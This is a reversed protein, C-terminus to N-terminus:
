GGSSLSVSDGRPVEVADVGEGHKIEYDNDFHSIDSDILDSIMEKSEYVV